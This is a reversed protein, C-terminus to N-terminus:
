SRPKLKASKFWMKKTLFKRFPLMRKKSFRRLNHPPCHIINGFCPSNRTCIRFVTKKFNSWLFFNVALHTNNQDGKKCTKEKKAEKRNRSLNWSIFSFVGNDYKSKWFNAFIKELFDRINRNSYFWFKFNWWFFVQIFWIDFISQFIHLWFDIKWLNQFFTEISFLNHFYFFQQWIAM